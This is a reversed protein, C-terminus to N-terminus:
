LSMSLEMLSGFGNPIRTPLFISGLSLSLLLVFFAWLSLCRIAPNEVRSQLAAISVLGGVAGSSELTCSQSPIVSYFSFPPRPLIPGEPSEIVGWCSLWSYWECSALVASEDLSKGSLRSTRERFFHQPDQHGLYHGRSGSYLCPLLEKRGWQKRLLLWNNSAEKVVPGMKSNKHTALELRLFCEAIQTVPQISQM